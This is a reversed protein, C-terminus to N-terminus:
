ATAGYLARHTLYDHVTLAQALIEPDTIAGNSNAQTGDRPDLSINVYVVRETTSTEAM